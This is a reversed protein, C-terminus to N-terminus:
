VLVLLGGPCNCTGGVMVPGLVTQYKAPSLGEPYVVEIVRVEDPPLEVVHVTVAPAFLTEREPVVPACIVTVLLPDGNLLEAPSMVILAVTPPTSEAGKERVVRFGYKM